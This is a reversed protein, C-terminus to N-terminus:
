PFDKRSLSFSVLNKPNQAFEETWQRFLEGSNDFSYGVYGQFVKLFVFMNSVKCMTEINKPIQSM